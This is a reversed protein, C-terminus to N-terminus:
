TSFPEPVSRRQPRARLIKIAVRKQFTGDSRTAEYVVGMGGRGIEKELIYPGVRSGARNSVPNGDDRPEAVMSSVVPEDLFSTCRSYAALLHQLEAAM